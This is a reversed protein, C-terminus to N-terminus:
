VLEFDHYLRAKIFPIEKSSEDFYGIRFLLPISMWKTVVEYGAIRNFEEVNFRYTVGFVTDKKAIFEGNM